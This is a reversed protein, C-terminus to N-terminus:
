WFPVPTHALSSRSIRGRMAYLLRALAIHAESMM